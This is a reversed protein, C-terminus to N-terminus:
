CLNECMVKPFGASCFMAQLGFLVVFLPWPDKDGELANEPLTWAYLQRAQRRAIVAGEFSLMFLASLFGSAAMCLYNHRDTQKSDLM